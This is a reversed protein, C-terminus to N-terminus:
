SAKMMSEPEDLWELLMPYEQKCAKFMEFDFYDCEDRSLIKFAQRAAEKSSDDIQIKYNFMECYMKLFSLWFEEYSEYTIRGAGVIDLIKFSIEDKEEQTGNYVIDQYVLYDEM